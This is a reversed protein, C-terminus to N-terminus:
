QDYPFAKKLRLMDKNRPQRCPCLHKVASSKFDPPNLNVGKCQLQNSKKGPQESKLEETASQLHDVSKAQWLHLSQLRIQLKLM